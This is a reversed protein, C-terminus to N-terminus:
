NLLEENFRDTEGWYTITTTMFGIQEVIAWRPSKAQPDDMLPQMDFLKVTGSGELSIFYHVLGSSVHILERNQRSAWYYRGDHQVITIRLEAREKPTLVDRKTFAENSTVRSTPLLDLIVGSDAVADSCPACFVLIAILTLSVKHM